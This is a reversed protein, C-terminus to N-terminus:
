FKYQAGVYLMGNVNMLLTSTDNGNNDSSYSMDMAVDEVYAVRFGFGALSLPAYELGLGFRM